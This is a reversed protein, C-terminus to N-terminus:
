LYVMFFTRLDGAPLLQYIEGAPIRVQLVAKFLIVVAVAVGIAALLTRWDRYGLRLPLILALLISGPM